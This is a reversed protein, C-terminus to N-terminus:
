FPLKLRVMTRNSVVGPAVTAQEVEAAARLDGVVGTEAKVTDDFRTPDVPRLRYREQRVDGCVLIEDESVAGRCRAPALLPTLEIRAPPVAVAQVLSWAWFM